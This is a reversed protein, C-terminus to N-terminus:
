EQDKCYRLVAAIMGSLSAEDSEIEVQLGLENVAKSTIESITVLNTSQLSEGFMKNVSNAIASSSLFTFDIAGEAMATVTEESPATVDESRYAAVESVEAGAKSLGKKLVDRGRNARILLVRKGTIEQGEMEDLLTEADFKHPMLDCILGQERLADVTRQGVAGLKSAGFCRLDKGVAFIRNLLARVGNASAFVIWDFKQIDEIANDILSTEDDGLKKIEIAPQCLVEAGLEELQSRAPEMQNEPRCLLITKGFLPRSEFWSNVLEPKAAEGVIFVVPPRIKTPQNIINEVEGLVTKWTQQQVFSCRRVILVPTQPSKGNEMLAVPWRDVSTTGMYFVLTGPFNALAQFDISSFEKDKTERGTVFAIASAYERNTIPLGSLSSAALGSTIGPVIEFRLGREKLCALEEALRGFIAPDGSKLRVVTQGAICREVILENVEDQSLLRSGAQNMRAHSGLSILECDESAHRLLIPNVLYDYLVVDARKLCEVARLTILKADGPGAGVLYVIGTTENGQQSENETQIMESDYCSTWHKHKGANM